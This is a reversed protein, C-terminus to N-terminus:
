LMEDPMRLLLEALDGPLPGAIVQAALARLQALRQEAPEGGLVQANYAKYPQSVARPRQSVQPAQPYLLFGFAHPQAMKGFLQARKESDGSCEWFQVQSPVLTFV